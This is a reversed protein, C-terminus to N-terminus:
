LTNTLAMYLQKTTLSGTNTLIFRQTGNMKLVSTWLGKQNQGKRKRQTPGNNHTSSTSKATVGIRPQVRDPLRGRGGEEPLLSTNIVPARGTSHPSHIKRSPGCARGVTGTTNVVSPGQNGLWSFAEFEIKSMGQSTWWELGHAQDSAGLQQHGGGRTKEGPSSASPGTLINQHITM